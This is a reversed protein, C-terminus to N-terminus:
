LQLSPHPDVHGLRCCAVCCSFLGRQDVLHRGTGRDGGADLICAMDQTVNFRHARQLGGQDHRFGSAAHYGIRRGQEKARIVPEDHRQCHTKHGVLQLVSPAEGDDGFRKGKNVM